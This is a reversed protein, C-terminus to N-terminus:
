IYISIRWYVLLYRYLFLGAQLFALSLLEDPLLDTVNRRIILDSFAQRPLSNAGHAVHVAIMM